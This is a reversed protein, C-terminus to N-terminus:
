KNELPRELWYELTLINGNAKVLVVTNEHPRIGAVGRWEAKEYDRLVAFAGLARADNSAEFRVTKKQGPELIFEQKRVLDPGLVSEDKKYLSIFDINNFVSFSKLEYIRLALPSAHGEADLNIDKSAEIELTIITPKAPPPTQGGCSILLLSATLLIFFRNANTM